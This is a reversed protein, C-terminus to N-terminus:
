FEEQIAAFFHSYVTITGYILLGGLISMVTAGPAIINSHALAVPLASDTGCRPLYGPRHRRPIGHYVKGPRPICQQQSSYSSLMGLRILCLTKGQLTGHVYQMRCHRLSMRQSWSSLSGTRSCRVHCFSSSFDARWDVCDSLAVSLILYV